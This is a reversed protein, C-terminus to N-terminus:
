KYFEPKAILTIDQRSGSELAKVGTEAIVAAAYGDWSSSALAPYDGGQVWALFARNQQRYAEAYRDRWDPDHGVSKTADKDLRTYSVHNTAISGTEGVLEAKVDYGYAANNNVEITVIQNDATQVVMVVPAVKDDSRKPQTATISVAESDLMYRLIDFEHPASNTIAMAGTFDGAPTAGNRHWNHLMLARGITGDKLARKMQIYAPDYRRMFGLMVHRSGAAEEAKMVDLCEASSQSLPKECMVKKGAKICALSLPAHTFDPSAVIVADVDDRAIVGEPDTAAEAGYQDAIAQARAADMDCVVSLKAGPLDEAVIRAHDAGMIGAGIVAIRITM